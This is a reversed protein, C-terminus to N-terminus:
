ARRRINQLYRGLARSVSKLHSLSTGVISASWFPVRVSENHSATSATAPVRELGFRFSSNRQDQGQGQAENPTDTSHQTKAERMKRISDYRLWDAHPLAVVGDDDAAAM